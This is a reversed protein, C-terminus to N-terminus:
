VWELLAKTGESHLMPMLDDYINKITIYEINKHASKGRYKNVGQLQSVTDHLVTLKIISYSM